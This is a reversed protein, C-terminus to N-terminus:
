PLCEQDLLDVYQVNKRVNFELYNYLVYNGVDAGYPAIWQVDEYQYKDLTGGKFTSM